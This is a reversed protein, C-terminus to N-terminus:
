ATAPARRRWTIITALSLGTLVLTSPEPATAAPAFLLGNVQYAPVLIPNGDVDLPAQVSFTIHGFDTAPDDSLLGLFFSGGTADLASLNGRFTGATGGADVTVGYTGIPIADFSPAYAFDIGFAALSGTGNYILTFIDAQVFVDYPAGGLVQAGSGNDVIAPQTMAPDFGYTFAGRTDGNAINGFAYSSFADASLSLGRSAAAALFGTRDDMGIIAAQALGAAILLYLGLIGQRLPVPLITPISKM